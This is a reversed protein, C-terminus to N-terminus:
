RSSRGSDQNGIASELAAVVGSCFRTLLNHVSSLVSPAPDFGLSAVLIRAPFGATETFDTQDPEVSQDKSLIRRWSKGALVAALM